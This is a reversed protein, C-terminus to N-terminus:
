FPRAAPRAPRRAPSPSLNPPALRGSRRDTARSLPGNPPRVWRLRATAGAALGTHM